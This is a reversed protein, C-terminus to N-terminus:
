SGERKERAENVGMSPHRSLRGGERLEPPTSLERGPRTHPKSGSAGGHDRGVDPAREGRRRIGSLPATGNGTGPGGEPLGARDGRSDRRHRRPDRPVVKLVRQILQEVEQPSHDKLLELKVRLAQICACLIELHRELKRTLAGWEARAEPDLIEIQSRIGRLAEVLRRDEAQITEWSRLANRLREGNLHAIDADLSDVLQRLRRLIGEVTDWSRDWGPPRRSPSGPVDVRCRGTRVATMLEEELEKLRATETRFGLELRALIHTTRDNLM